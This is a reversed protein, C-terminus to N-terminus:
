APDRRSGRRRGALFGAAGFLSGVGVIGFTSAVGLVAAVPGLVLAGGSGGIDWSSQLTALASSRERPPVRDVTYSQIGPQLLGFGAGAFLAAGLFVLQNSAVTLLFMSSATSLLGPVIVAARGIRDAVPGSLLMASITAVSLVTFFLGPNGLHRDEALLPLFTAVPATTLTYTVFVATPFLAGRCILPVSDGSAAEVPARTRTSSMRLAMATGILAAAASFIFGAAFGHNSILWFGVVPAYVGGLGIANGMYAMAEARRTVPALDAVIVSTAVPALAIGTGQLMRVPIMWWVSPAPIYLLSAVAFIASGAVAVRKAGLRYIWQGGFPRVLLSVVGVSGVVVGIHWQEGGRHLVYPPLLVFLSTYSAFLFHGTLLDLLYDSTWLRAPPRAIPSQTM